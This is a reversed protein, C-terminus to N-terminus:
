LNRGTRNVCGTQAASTIFNKLQGKWKPAHWTDYASMGLRHKAWRFFAWVVEPLTSVAADHIASLAVYRVKDASSLSSVMYKQFRTLLFQLAKIKENIIGARFAEYFVNLVRTSHM